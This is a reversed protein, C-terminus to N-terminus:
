LVDYLYTMGMEVDFDGSQITKFPDAIISGLWVQVKQILFSDM